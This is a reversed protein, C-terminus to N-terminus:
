LRKLVEDRVTWLTTDRTEFYPHDDPIEIVSVDPALAHFQLQLLEPTTAEITGTVQGTNKRYKLAKRM